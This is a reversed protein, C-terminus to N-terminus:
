VVLILMDDIDNIRLRPFDGEKFTYLENDARRVEIERLYRYGHKRMVKFQTVWLAYKDYTVKVPSWITPVM